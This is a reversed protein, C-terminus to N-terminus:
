NINSNFYYLLLDGGGFFFVIPIIPTYSIFEFLLVFVKLNAMWCSIYYQLERIHGAAEWWLVSLWYVATNNMLNAYIQM